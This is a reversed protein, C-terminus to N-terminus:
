DWIAQEAAQGVVACLWGNRRVCVSPPQWGELLHELRQREVCWHWHRLDTALSSRQWKIAAEKRVWSELVLAEREPPAQSQLQQWEQPPFFRCALLEAAIRRQQWELDVGIPWPSWALLLQDRSHSLSVAGYGEALCPAEGPPSHLPVAEAPLGLCTALRARLLHRSTRYRHQVAPPLAASWAREAESLSWPDGATLPLLWLRPVAAASLAGRLSGGNHQLGAM